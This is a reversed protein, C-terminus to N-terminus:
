SDMPGQWQRAWHIQNRHNAAPSSQYSDRGMRCTPIIKWFVRILAIFYFRSRLTLSIFIM